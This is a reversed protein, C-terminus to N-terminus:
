ETKDWTISVKRVNCKPVLISHMGDTFEYESDNQLLDCATFDQTTDDMYIVTAIVIKKM